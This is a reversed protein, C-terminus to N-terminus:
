WFFRILDIGYVNVPAWFPSYPTIRMWNPRMIQIVSFFVIFFALLINVYLKKIKFEVKSTSFIYSAIIPISFSFYLSIRGLILSALAIISIGIYALSLMCFFNEEKTLPFDLVSLVLIFTFLGPLVKVLFDNIVSTGTTNFPNDVYLAAYYSGINIKAIVYWVVSNLIALFIAISIIILISKKNFTIKNLILFFLGVIASAHFLTALGVFVLFLINREKLLFPIGCFLICLALSQRMLSSFNAYDLCFFVVVSLFICSSYKKLFFFAIFFSILSVAFFFVYPSSSLSGVFRVLAVYGAAYRTGLAETFTMHNIETFSLFYQVSDAGVYQSRLGTITVIFILLAYFLFKKWAIFNEEKLTFPLLSLLIIGVYPLPM